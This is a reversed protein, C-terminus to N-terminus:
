QYDSADVQTGEARTVLKRLVRPDIADQLLDVSGDCLLV